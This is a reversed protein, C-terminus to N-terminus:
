STADDPGKEMALGIFFDRDLLKLDPLYPDLQNEADSVIKDSFTWSRSGVGFFIQDRAEIVWQRGELTLRSHIGQTEAFGAKALREIIDLVQAPTLSFKTHLEYLDAWDDAAFLFRIVERDSSSYDTM